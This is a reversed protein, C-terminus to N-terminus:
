RPSQTPQASQKCTMQFELTLLVQFHLAAQEAWDGSPGGEAAPWPQQSLGPAAPARLGLALSSLSYLGKSSKWAAAAEGRPM